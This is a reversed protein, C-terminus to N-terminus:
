DAGEEDQSQADGEQEGVSIQGTGFPPPPPTVGNEVYLEILEDDTLSNVDRLQCPLRGPPVGERGDGLASTFPGEDIGVHRDRACIRLNIQRIGNTVFEVDTALPMFTLDCFLGDFEVRFPCRQAGIYIVLTTDNLVEYDRIRERNFCDTVSCKEVLDETEDGVVQVTIGHVAIGVVLALPTIRM